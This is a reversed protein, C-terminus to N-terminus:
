PKLIPDAVAAARGQQLGLEIGVDRVLLSRLARDAELQISASVFTV